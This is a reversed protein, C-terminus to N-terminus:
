VVSENHIVTIVSYLHSLIYLNKVEELPHLSACQMCMLQGAQKSCFDYSGQLAGIMFWARMAATM